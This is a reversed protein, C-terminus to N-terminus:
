NWVKDIWRVGHVRLAVELAARYESDESALEDYFFERWSEPIDTETKVYELAWGSWHPALQGLNNDKDTKMSNRLASMM